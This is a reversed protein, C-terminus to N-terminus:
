SLMLFILLLFIKNVDTMSKLFNSLCIKSNYLMNCLDSFKQVGINCNSNSMNM